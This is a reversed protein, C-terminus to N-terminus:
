EGCDVTVFDECVTCTGFLIDLVESAQPEWEGLLFWDSNPMEAQHIWWWFLLRRVGLEDILQCVMLVVTCRLFYFLSLNIQKVKTKRGTLSQQCTNSGLLIRIFIILAFLWCFTEKSIHPFCRGRAGKFGSLSMQRDHYFAWVVHCQRTQTYGYM